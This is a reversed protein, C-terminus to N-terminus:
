ENDGLHFHLHEHLQQQVEGRRMIRKVILAVVFAATSVLVIMAEPPLDYEWAVLLGSVSLILGLIIALVMMRKMNHTFLGAFAAPITLLAIVLVVGVVKIVVVVTLAVLVLLVVNFLGTRVGSIKAFEEDFSLALFEKYFLIVLVVIAIILYFMYWLDQRAVLLLNGFLISMPDQVYGQTQKIFVIGAAMGVVWLVGITSDERLKARLNVLGVLIAAGVAFIIAGWMPEFNLYYALGIGGFATHSLGGSIFVIRKVVVYTGIIGCAISALIAAIFMNQVFPRDIYAFLDLLTM